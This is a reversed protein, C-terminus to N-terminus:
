LARCEGRWASRNKHRRQGQRRSSGSSVEAKRCGPQQRLPRREAEASAGAPPDAGSRSIHRHCFGRVSCCETVLSENSEGEPEVERATPEYIMIIRGEILVRRYLAEQAAIRIGHSCCDFRCPACPLVAMPFTAARSPPAWSRRGAKATRASRWLAGSPPMFLYM